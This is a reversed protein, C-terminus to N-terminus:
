FNVRGPPLNSFRERIGACGKLLPSLRITRGDRFSLVYWGIYANFSVRTLDAWNQRKRGSWATTFSLGEADYDGRTWFYELFCYIAALAFAIGIVLERSLGWAGKSVMLQALTFAAFALCGAGLCALFHGYRLEGSAPSRQSGNLLVSMVVVTLFGGILISIIGESM